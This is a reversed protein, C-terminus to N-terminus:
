CNIRTEIVHGVSDVIDLKIAIRGDLYHTACSFCPNYARIAMEVRNLLGQDSKGGKILDTARDVDGM